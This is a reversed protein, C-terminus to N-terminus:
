LRTENPSASRPSCRPLVDLVRVARRWRRRAGAYATIDTLTVVGAAVAMDVAVVAERWGPAIRADDFLARVPTTVMVGQVHTVDDYRRPEYSLRVSESVRCGREPGLSVVLPLPMVGDPGKGDFYAAAHFWLAGWGSVAARPWRSALEVARQEPRDREVHAPLYLNPGVRAWNGCRAEDRTPGRVGAPDLSSPVTFALPQARRPHFPM